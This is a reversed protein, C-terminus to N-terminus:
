RREKKRKITKKETKNTTKSEKRTEKKAERTKRQKRTTKREKDEATNNTLDQKRKPQFLALLVYFVIILCFSM